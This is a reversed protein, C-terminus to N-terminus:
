HEYSAIAVIPSSLVRDALSGSFRQNSFDFVGGDAGVLLYGADFAAAGVVPANLVVSGLSGRFPADFAFVGGDGAVM